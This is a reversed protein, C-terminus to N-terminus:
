PKKEPADFDTADARQVITIKENSVVMVFTGGNDFTDLLATRALRFIHQAPTHTGYSGGEIDMFQRMRKKNIEFQLIATM